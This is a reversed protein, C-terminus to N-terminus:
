FNDALEEFYSQAHLCAPCVKPAAVAKEIYGCNRCKWWVEGDKLFVKGDKINQALKRYREEHHKEVLAIKRFSEAIKPFGEQEAIDAFHPYLDMAEEHEGEAAHLLCDVTDKLLTTAVPITVEVCTAQAHKYFIEAHEKENDATETFIASIQEYGAKKAVSAFYTYRMRAQCEGAYAMLLNKETQTGKLEKMNTWNTKTLTPRDIGIM